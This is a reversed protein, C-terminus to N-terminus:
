NKNSIKRYNKPSIGTYQRFYKGFTFQEPFNLEEAIEKISKNTRTLLLKANMITIASIWESPTRGTFEKVTVSFYGTSLRAERAYYTVSREERFKQYLSYIFQFAKQENVSSKKADLSSKRYYLAITNLMAEQVLLQILRSLVKREDDSTCNELRTRSMAIQRHQHIFYRTERDDLQLFPKERMKLHLVTEMIPQMIPFFTEADDIISLSRYNSKNRIEDLMLLPSVIFLSGHHLHYIKGDLQLDAEGGICVEVGAKGLMNSIKDM